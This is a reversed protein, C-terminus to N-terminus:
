KLPIRYSSGMQAEWSSQREKLLKRKAAVLAPNADRDCTSAIHSDEGCHFCYWPKPKSLQKLPVSSVVESLNTQVSQTKNMRTASQTKASKSPKAEVIQGKLGVVQKQLDCVRGEPACQAQKKAKTLGEVQNQLEAIQKKLDSVITQTSVVEDSSACVSYSSTRLKSAGLHKRMRLEKTSIKDEATRLLLLLESFSPPNAKKQELQLESILADDWCGRCFQRVLHRDAESSPVGGRRIAQALAVQLRQLFQSPKEGANQMTSLFKAFLEDGDEVTGFASDLLDLYARPTAHLGLTRVIDSAPPLLSDIIKRSRVLDSVAPDQLMLEVSNHWIEYDVENAPRPSRGSFFRLKLPAHMHSTAEESKVIHEVVVRQIEPPNVNPVNTGVLPVFAAGMPIEQSGQAPNVQSIGSRLDSAVDTTDDDAQAIPERCKSLEEQLLDEFRRGSLKAISKLKEMYGKTASTTVTEVYISSLAKIEYQIDAQHPNEFIFPLQPELIKVASGSEYEVIVNKHHPSGPSDIRVIRNICGYKGLHETLDIDSETDTTGSVILSNPVKINEQEIIEMKVNYLRNLYTQNRVITM